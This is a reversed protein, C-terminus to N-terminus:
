GNHTVTKKKKKKKKKKKGVYYAQAILSYAILDGIFRLSIKNWCRRDSAYSSELIFKHLPLQIIHSHLQIASFRKLFFNAAIMWQASDNLTSLHPLPPRTETIAIM